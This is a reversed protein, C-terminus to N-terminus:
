YVIYEYATHINLWDWLKGEELSELAVSITVTLSKIYMKRTNHLLSLQICDKNELM